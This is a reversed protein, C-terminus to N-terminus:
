EVNQIQERIKELEAKIDVVLPSVKMGQVKNGCTTIERNAEQLLFDLKRGVVGGKTLILDIQALHAALRTLEEAVDMKMALVAAEQEFRGPDIEGKSTLDDLRSRMKAKLSDHVAGAQKEVKSVLKNLRETRTRLDTQLAKGETKRMSVLGTVAKKLARKALTRVRELDAPREVLRVVGPQGLLNDITLEGTLKTKKQLRQFAELYKRAMQEDIQVDTTVSAPASVTLFCDVRGRSLLKSVADRVEPELVAYEKPLRVNVELFRHNVSKIDCQINLGAASAEGRGFGTMSIIM